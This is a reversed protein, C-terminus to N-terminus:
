VNIKSNFLGQIKGMHTLYEIPNLPLKPFHEPVYGININCKSENLIREGSPISSLGAIIKLLTSKGCGNTGVIAMCQNKLISLSINDLITINGYKKTLNKLELIVNNM